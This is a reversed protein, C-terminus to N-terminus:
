KTLTKDVSNNKDENENIKNKSNSQSPFSSNQNNKLNKSFNLIYNNEAQQCVSKIREDINPDLMYDIEYLKKM